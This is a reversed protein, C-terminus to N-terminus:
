EEEVDEIYGGGFEENLRRMLLEMKVKMRKGTTGSTSDFIWYGNEDHPSLLTANGAADMVRMEGSTSYFSCGGSLAGVPATGDFIEITKTGVTTGRVSNDGIQLNGVSSLYLHTGANTKFSLRNNGHDYTIQGIDNDDADGFFIYNNDGAPCLFQLGAHSNDEIILDAAASATVSGATGRWIHVQDLDPDPPTASQAIMLGGNISRYHTDTGDSYLEAEAGSTGLLIKVNDNLTINASRTATGNFTTASITASGDSGDHDHVSLVDARLANYQTHTALDGNAVDSSSAM